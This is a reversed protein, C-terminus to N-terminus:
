EWFKHDHVAFEYDYLKPRPERRDAHSYQKCERLSRWDPQSESESDTYRWAHNANARSNSQNAASCTPGSRRGSKYHDSDSSRDHYTAGHHDYESATHGHGTASSYHAADNHAANRDNASPRTDGGTTAATTAARLADAPGRGL